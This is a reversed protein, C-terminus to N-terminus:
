SVSGLRGTFSNLSHSTFSAAFIPMRSQDWHSILSTFSSVVKQARNLEGFLQTNEVLPRSSIVILQLREALTFILISPNPMSFSGVPQAALNSETLSIAARSITVFKMICANSSTVNFIDSIRQSELIMSFMSRLVESNDDGFPAVVHMNSDPFSKRSIILLARARPRPISRTVKLITTVYEPLERMMRIAIAM